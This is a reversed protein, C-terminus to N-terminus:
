IDPWQFEDQNLIPYKKSARLGPVKGILGPLANYGKFFEDTDKDYRMPDSILALNPPLNDEKRLLADYPNIGRVPTSFYDILDQITVIDNLYSNPIHHKFEEICKTMLNFKLKHNNDLSLDLVSEEIKDVSNVLKFITLIREQVDSPPDYPKSERAEGRSRLSDQFRKLRSQATEKAEKPDSKYSENWKYANFRNDKDKPIVNMWPKKQKKKSIFENPNYKDTYPTKTNDLYCERNNRNVRWPYIKVHHRIQSYNCYSLSQRQFIIKLQM